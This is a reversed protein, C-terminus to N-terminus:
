GKINDLPRFTENKLAFTLTTAVGLEAAKWGARIALEKTSTAGELATEAAALPFGMFGGFVMMQLAVPGYSKNALRNIGKDTLDLTRVVGSMFQNKIDKKIEPWTPEPIGTQILDHMFPIYM